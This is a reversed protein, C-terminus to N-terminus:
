AAHRGDFVRLVARRPGVVKRAQDRRVDRVGARDVHAGRVRVIRVRRGEGGRERDRRGAHAAARLLRAAALHGDAALRLEVRRRRVVALPVCDVRVGQLRREPRRHYTIEGHRVRDVVAARWGCRPRGLRRRERVRALVGHPVLHRVRVVLIEDMRRLNLDRLAHHRERSLRLRIEIGAGLDLDRADHHAVEHDAM